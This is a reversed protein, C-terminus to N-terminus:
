RTFSQITSLLLLHVGITIFTILLKIVYVKEHNKNLIKLLNVLIQFRKCFNYFFVQTFPKVLTFYVTNFFSTNCFMM